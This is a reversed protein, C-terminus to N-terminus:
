VSLPGSLSMPETVPPLPTQSLAPAALALFMAACMVNTNLVKM